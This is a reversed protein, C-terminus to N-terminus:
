RVRAGWEGSNIAAVTWNAVGIPDGGMIELIYKYTTQLVVDAGQNDVGARRYLRAINAVGAATMRARMLVQIGPITASVVSLDQFAYTDRSNLVADAVYSTDENPPVENVAQWHTAAGVLTLWEAYNGVGNPVRCEVQTNGWYDNNPPSNPDAISQDVGDLIYLDDYHINADNAAAGLVIQNAFANATEQTDGAFTAWVGGDVRVELTGGANLIIHKFEIYYYVNSMLSGISTAVTTAGRVIQLRGDAQLYLRSQYSGSDVISLITSLVGIAPNRFAFGVIWTGQNDLTLIVNPATGYLRLGAAGTRAYAAGISPTGSVSTWKQTLATYHDFSELFRLAM